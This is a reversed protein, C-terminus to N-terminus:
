CEWSPCDCREGALAPEDDCPPTEGEGCAYDCPGNDSHYESCHGCQVCDVHSFGTTGIIGIVVGGIAGVIAFIAVGKMSFTFLDFDAVLEMVFGGVVGGMFGGWLGGELIDAIYRVIAGVTRVVIMDDESEAEKTGLKGALGVIWGPGSNVRATVQNLRPLSVKVGV